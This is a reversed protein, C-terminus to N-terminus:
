EVNRSIDLAKKASFELLNTWVQDDSPRCTSSTCCPYGSTSVTRIEHWSRRPLESRASDARISCRLRAQPSHECASGCDFPVVWEVWRTRHRISRDGIPVEAVGPGSPCAPRPRCTSMGTRHLDLIFSEDDGCSRSGTDFAGAGVNAVSAFTAGTPAHTRGSTDRNTTAWKVLRSRNRSDGGNTTM